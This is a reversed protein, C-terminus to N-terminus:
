KGKKIQYGLDRLRNCIPKYSGDTNYWSGQIICDYINKQEEKDTTIKDLIRDVAREKNRIIRYNPYVNDEEEFIEIYLRQIKAIDKLHIEKMVINM